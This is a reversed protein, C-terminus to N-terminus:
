HTDNANVTRPNRSARGATAQPARGALLADARARVLWYDRLADVQGIAAEVQDRKAALVQLPGTSMANYQLLTASLIAERRPLLHERYFVLTDRAARLEVVTARATSRVRTATAQQRHVAGRMESEAAAVEGQGQYFLPITLGFRPGVSWEGADREAVAGADVSPLIGEAWALDGRGSAAAHLRDLARLDLNAAVARSELAADDFATPEPLRAASTWRRAAEGSLGMLANLRERATAEELEARAVALRAEDHLAGQTLSELDPVNGAEVLKGALESSHAAALLVTKQLGLRQQAAQYSHFATKTEFVVDLAKGTAEFAAAELAASAPAERAALLWLDTLSLSLDLDLAVEGDRGFRAGVEGHPNPLRLASVLEARAIGVDDLAARVDGNHLLAVKAAGDATLPSQLLADMAEGDDDTESLPLDVNARAHLESRVSSLGSDRSVCGSFVLACGLALSVLRGAARSKSARKM